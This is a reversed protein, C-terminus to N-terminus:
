YNKQSSYLSNRISTITKFKTFKDATFKNRIRNFFKLSARKTRHQILIIVIREIFTIYSLCYPEQPILHTRCAALTGFPPNLTVISCSRPAHRAAFSSFCRPSGVRQHPLCHRGRSITKKWLSKIISKPNLQSILRSTSHPTLGTAISRCEPCRRHVEDRSDSARM